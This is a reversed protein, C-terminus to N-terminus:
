DNAKDCLPCNIHVNAPTEPNICAPITPTPTPTSNLPPTPTITLTPTPTSDLPPTPTASPTILVPPTVTPTPTNSPKPDTPKDPTCSSITYFAEPGPEGSQYDGLDLQQTFCGNADKPGTAGTRDLCVNSKGNTRMNGLNWSWYGTRAGQKSQCGSKSYLSHPGPCQYRMGVDITYKPPGEVTFKTFCNGDWGFLKTNKQPDVASSKYNFGQQTVTYGVVVGILIVFTTAFGIVKAIHPRRKTQKLKVPTFNSQTM